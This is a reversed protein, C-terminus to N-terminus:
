SLRQPCPLKRDIGSPHRCFQLPQAGCAPCPRDIAGDAYVEIVPGEGRRHRGPGTAFCAGDRGDDDLPDAM